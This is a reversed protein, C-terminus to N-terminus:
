ASMTRHKGLANVTNVTLIVTFLEVSVDDVKAVAFEATFAATSGVSFAGPQTGAPPLFIQWNANRRDYTCSKMGIQVIPRTAPYKAYFGRFTKLAKDLRNTILNILVRESVHIAPANQAIDAIQQHLVTAM